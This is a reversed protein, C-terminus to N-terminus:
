VAELGGIVRYENTAVCVVSFADYQLNSIYGSAGAATGRGYLNVGTGPKIVMSAADNFIQVTDGAEFATATGITVTSASTFRLYKNADTQAVTYATATSATMPLSLVPKWASGSTYVELSDTGSLYTTMGVVATAIASTRAAEDDFVMVSQNMLYTNLDSDTLVEGNVFTKKPM